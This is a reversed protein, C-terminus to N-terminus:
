KGHHHHKSQWQFNSICATIICNRKIM